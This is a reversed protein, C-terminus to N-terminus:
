YDAVALLRGVQEVDDVPEFVRGLGCSHATRTRRSLQLFISIRQLLAPTSSKGPRGHRHGLFLRFYLCMRQKLSISGAESDGRVVGVVEHFGFVLLSGDDRSSLM